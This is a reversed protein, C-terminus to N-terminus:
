WKLLFWNSIKACYLVCLLWVFITIMTVRPKIHSDYLNDNSNQTVFCNEWFQWTTNIDDIYYTITSWHEWNTCEDLQVSIITLFVHLCEPLPQWCEMYILSTFPRNMKQLIGTTLHGCICVAHCPVPQLHVTAMDTGCVVHFNIYEIGRILNYM